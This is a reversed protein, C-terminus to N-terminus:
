FQNVATNKNIQQQDYGHKVCRTTSFRWEGPARSCPNVHLQTMVKIVEPIALRKHIILNWIATLIDNFSSLKTKGTITHFLGLQTSLSGVDIVDYIKRMKSVKLTM